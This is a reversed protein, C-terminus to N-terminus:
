QSTQSLERLQKLIAEHLKKKDREVKKLVSLIKKKDRDAEQIKEFLKIASQPTVRPYKSTKEGFDHFYASFDYQEFLDLLQRVDAFCELLLASHLGKVPELQAFQECQILDLNLQKLAGLSIQNVEDGLMINLMKKNIHHCAAVSATTAVKIPLNTFALFISQLFAVLDLIYESARGKPEKLTWDYDATDFTEDIKAQLREYIQLEAEARADKFMSKGKFEVKHSLDKVSGGTIRSIFDELYSNTHELYNTNITIQILQLLGVSQKQILTTLCGSLTRKLLLNTSKRVMDDVETQSLNLGETFKLSAHVFDKVQQYVKPVMSSFPFKRPYMSDDLASDRYPFKGIIELYEAENSVQLPHYTDENFIEYFAHVCKQILINTYHDRNEQLTVYLQSIDYGYSALSNCFLTVENKIQFIFEADTCCSVNTRLASAVVPVSNSWVDELFTQSVLGNTTYLLHNEIVFFGVIAHFYDRYRQLGEYMNSIPQLVLSCQERRQKRYYNEFSQKEGLVTFIHLCRYLPSFDVLDQASLGEDEDLTTFYNGGDESFLTPPATTAVNKKRNRRTCHDLDLQESTHRMAVEGIRSSDKRLNDLFDRLESMSSDQIKQRFRKHTLQEELKQYIKFVPLCTQLQEITSVINSEIRHEKAMEEGTELVNAIEVSIEKDM